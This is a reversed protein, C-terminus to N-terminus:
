RKSLNGFDICQLKYNSSFLIHSHNTAHFWIIFCLQFKEINIIYNSKQLLHSHISFSIFIFHVHVEVFFLQGKTFVFVCARELSYQGPPHCCCKQITLFSWNIIKFHELNQKNTLKTKIKSKSYVCISISGNSFSFFFCGEGM